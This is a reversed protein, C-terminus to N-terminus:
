KKLMKGDHQTYVAAWDTECRTNPFQAYHFRNRNQGSRDYALHYDHCYSCFGALKRFGAEAEPLSPAPKQRLLKLLLGAEKAEARLLDTFNAPADKVPVYIKISGDLRLGNILREVAKAALPINGHQLARDAQLLGDEALNSGAIHGFFGTLAAIAQVTGEPTAGGVIIATGPGDFAHDIVEITGNDAKDWAVRSKKQQVLEQVLSNESPGGCLILTKEQRYKPHVNESDIAVQDILATTNVSTFFEGLREALEITESAVSGNLSSGVVINTNMTGFPTVFAVERLAVNDPAFHNFVTGDPMCGFEIAGQESAALVTSNGILGTMILIFILHCIIKRLQIDM